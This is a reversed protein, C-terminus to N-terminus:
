NCNKSVFFTKENIPEKIAKKYHKVVEEPDVSIETFKHTLAYVALYNETDYDSASCRINSNTLLCGQSKSSFVCGTCFTDRPGKYLRITLEYEM